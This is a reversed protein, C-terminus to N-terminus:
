PHKCADFVRAGQDHMPLTTVTVLLARRHRAAMTVYFGHRGAWPKGVHVEDYPVDWRALWTEPPVTIADDYILVAGPGDSM